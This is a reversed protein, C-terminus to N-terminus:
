KRKIEKPKLVPKILACLCLDGGILLVRRKIYNKAEDVMVDSVVDRKKDKQDKNSMKRRRDYVDPM